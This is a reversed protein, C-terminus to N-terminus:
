EARRRAIRATAYSGLVGREPVFSVPRAFRRAGDEVADARRLPAGRPGRELRLEALGAYIAKAHKTIATRDGGATEVGRSAVELAKVYDHGAAHVLAKWTIGALQAAIASDYTLQGRAPAVAIIPYGMSGHWYSANDNSSYTRGDESWALTCVREGTSSAAEANTPGLLRVRGDAVAALAEYVKVEVPMTWETSM